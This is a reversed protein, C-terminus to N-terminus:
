LKLIYKLAKQLAISPSGGHLPRNKNTTKKQKTQRKSYPLNSARTKPSVVDYAQKSAHDSTVHENIHWLFVPTQCELSQQQRTELSIEFSDNQNVV